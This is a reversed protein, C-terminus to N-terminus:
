AAKKLFLSKLWAGLGGTQVTPGAPPASSQSRNAVPPPLPAVEVSVTPVAFAALAMAEARVGEVRATWGRGFTPWTSLRRLFALRDACIREITQGADKSTAAALTLPGLKGDDAVSLARQLSPIARGKGSNVAFDFVCYDVGSPLEDARVANWYNRRYIPAVSVKTLAKVEAKTAPRGLWDSLTGITVGLNTAGGPDAPHDVYGGEHVLVLALAREFNAAAM